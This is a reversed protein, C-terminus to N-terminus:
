KVKKNWTQTNGAATTTLVKGDESITGSIGDKEMAKMATIAQQTIAAQDAPMMYMNNELEVIKEKIPKSSVSDVKMTITKETLSWTGNMAQGGSTMVFKNDASIVMSGGGTATWTGPIKSETPQCGTVVLAFAALLPLAFALKMRQTYPM